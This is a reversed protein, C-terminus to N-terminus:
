PRGATIQEVTRDIVVVNQPLSFTTLRGSPRHPFRSQAVTRGSITCSPGETSTLYDWAIIRQGKSDVRNIRVVEVFNIQPSQASVTAIAVVSGPVIPRGLADPWSDYTKADGLGDDPPAPRGADYAPM